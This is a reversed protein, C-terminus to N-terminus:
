PRARPAGDSACSAARSTTATESSTHIRTFQRPRTSGNVPMADLQHFRMTQGGGAALPHATRSHALPLPARLECLHTHRQQNTLVTTM